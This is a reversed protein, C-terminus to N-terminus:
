KSIAYAFYSIILLHKFYQIYLCLSLQFISYVRPSIIVRRQKGLLHRVAELHGKYAAKRVPTSGTIDQINVRAGNALLQKMLEVKNHWAANHLPTYGEIDQINPDAGQKLLTAVM